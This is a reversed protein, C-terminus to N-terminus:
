HIVNGQYKNFFRKIRKKRLKKMFLNLRRHKTFYNHYKMIIDIPKIKFEFHLKEFELEGSTDQSLLYYDAETIFANYYENDIVKKLRM